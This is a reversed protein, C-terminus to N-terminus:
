CAGKEDDKLVELREPVTQRERELSPIFISFGGGESNSHAKIIQVKEHTGDAHKYMGYQTKKTVPAKKVPHGKAAETAAEKAITAEPTGMLMLAKKIKLTSVVAEDETGKPLGFIKQRAPEVQTLTHLEKKLDGLTTEDTTEISLKQKGFKVTVPM